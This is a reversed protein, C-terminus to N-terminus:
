PAFDLQAQGFSSTRAFQLLMSGLQLELHVTQLTEALSDLDGLVGYFSGGLLRALVEDRLKILLHTVDKSHDGGAAMGCWRIVANSVANAFANNCFRVCEGGAGHLWLDDLVVGTIDRAGAAYGVYILKSNSAVARHADKFARAEDLSPDRPFAAPPINPQGDLTLGLVRYHSHNIQLVIRPGRIVTRFRKSVDRGTEVGRIVIPADPRGARRTEAPDYAGEALAIITGPEALDLARQLSRLPRDTSGPADDTGALSVHLTREPAASPAQAASRVVAVRSSTAMRGAAERIQLGM